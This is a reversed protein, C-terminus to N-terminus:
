IGRIYLNEKFEKKLKKISTALSADFRENGTSVVFGGLLEEDITEILDVTVGRRREILAIIRERMDQSLTAVTRIEITVINHHEKYKEIFERAIGELYKERRNHIILSFFRLTVEEAKGKFLERVVNYKKEPKVVPNVLFHRFEKSERIVELLLALDNKVQEVKGTEIALEFLAKAYREAIISDLM